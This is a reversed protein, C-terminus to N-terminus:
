LLSLLIYQLVITKNVSTNINILIIVISLLRIHASFHKDDVNTPSLWFYKKHNYITVSLFFIKELWKVKQSIEKVNISLQSGNLYVNVKIVYKVSTSHVILSLLFIAFISQISVLTVKPLMFLIMHRKWSITTSKGVFEFLM